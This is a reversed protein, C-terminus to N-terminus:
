QNKEHIQTRSQRPDEYGLDSQHKHSQDTKILAADWTNMGEIEGDTQDINKGGMMDAIDDM